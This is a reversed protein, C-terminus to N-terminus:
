AGALISRLGALIALWMLASVGLSFPLALYLPWPRRTGTPAASGETVQASAATQAGPLVAPVSM